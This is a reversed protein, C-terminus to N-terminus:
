EDVSLFIMPGATLARHAMAAKPSDGEEALTTM